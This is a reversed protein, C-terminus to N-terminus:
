WCYFCAAYLKVKLPTINQRRLQAKVLDTNQGEMEGRLTQGKANKGEWVYVLKNVATAM